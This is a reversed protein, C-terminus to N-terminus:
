RHSCLSIVESISVFKAALLDKGTLKQSVRTLTCFFIENSVDKGWELVGKAQGAWHFGKDCM